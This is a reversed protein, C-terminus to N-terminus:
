QREELMAQFRYYKERIVEKQAEPLKVSNLLEYFLATEEALVLTIRDRDSKAENLAEGLATILVEANKVAAETQEARGLAASSREELALLTAAAKEAFDATIGAAKGTTESIASLGRNVLPLFGTKYLLALLVSFIVGVASLLTNGHEGFFTLLTETFTPAESQPPALPTSEEDPLADAETDPLADAETSPLADPSVLTEAAATCPLLLSLSLAILLAFFLKKM